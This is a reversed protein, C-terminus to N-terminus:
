LWKMQDRIREWAEVLQEAAPKTDRPPLSELADLAPGLEAQMLQYSQPDLGNADEWLGHIEGLV